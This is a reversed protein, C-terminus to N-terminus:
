LTERKALRDLFDDILALKAPAPKTARVLTRLREHDFPRVRHCAEVFKLDKPEFRNLKSAALDDVSPAIARIPKDEAEIEFEVARDRWDPPLSATREDVGDIYFKNTMHFQSGFGFLANIEESAEIGFQLEWERANAPYADIEPSTRAAAPANSWGALIAQSGIVYITDTTFHEALSRVARRFDEVTRIGQSGPAM